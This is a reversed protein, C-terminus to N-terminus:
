EIPVVLDAHCEFSHWGDNMGTQQGPYRHVRVGAGECNNSSYTTCRGGEDPGLSHVGTNIHCTETPAIWQCDGAANDTLFRLLLRHVYRPFLREYM